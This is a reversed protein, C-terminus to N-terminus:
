SSVLTALIHIALKCKVKKVSKGDEFLELELEAAQFDDGDISLSLSLHRVGEPVEIFSRCLM